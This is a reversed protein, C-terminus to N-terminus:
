IIRQALSTLALITLRDPSPKDRLSAGADSFGADSIGADVLMCLFLRRIFFTCRFLGAGSVREHYFVARSFGAGSFSADSFLRCLSFIDSYGAYPFGGDSFGASSFSSDSFGAFAQILFVQM